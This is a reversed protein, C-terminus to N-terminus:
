ARLLKRAEPAPAPAGAAEPGPAEVSDETVTYDEPQTQYMIQGPQVMNIGNVCDEPM